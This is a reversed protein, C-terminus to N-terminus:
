HRGRRTEPRELIDKVGAVLDPMASELDPYRLDVGLKERMKRNDLRRSETLYSLM